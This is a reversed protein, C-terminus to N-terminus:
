LKGPLARSRRCVRGSMSIVVDGLAIGASAGGVRIIVPGSIRRKDEVVRVRGRGTGWGLVNISRDRLEEVSGVVVVIKQILEAESFCGTVEFRVVVTLASYAVVCDDEIRM